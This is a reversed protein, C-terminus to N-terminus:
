KLETAELCSKYHKLTIKRKIVYKKTGKTILYSYTKARFGLFLKMIKGGLKYKILGIVKKKKGM